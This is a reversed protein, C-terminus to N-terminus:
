DKIKKEFHVKKFIVRNKLDASNSRRDELMM